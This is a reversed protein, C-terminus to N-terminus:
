IKTGLGGLATYLFLFVRLNSALSSIDVSDLVLHSICHLGFVHSWMAVNFVAYERGQKKKEM